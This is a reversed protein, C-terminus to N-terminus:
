FGKFSGRGWILLSKMFDGGGGEKMKKQGGVMQDFIVM